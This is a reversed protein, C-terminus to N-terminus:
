DSKRGMPHYASSHREYVIIFEVRAFESFVQTRNIASM